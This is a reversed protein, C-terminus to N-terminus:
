IGSRFRRAAARALAIAAAGAAMFLISARRRPQSSPPVAARTLRSPDEPFVSSPQAGTASRDPATQGMLDVGPGSTGVPQGEISVAPQERAPLARRKLHKVAGRLSEVARDSRDDNERIRVSEGVVQPTIAKQACAPAISCLCAVLPAVRRM